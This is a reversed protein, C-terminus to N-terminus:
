QPTGEQQSSTDPTPAPAETFDVYYEKGQAFYKAADTNVVGMTLQGTPTYKFFKENEPSGNTVANLNIRYEGDGVEDNAVVVFKARVGAM